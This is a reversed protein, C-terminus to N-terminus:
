HVFLCSIRIKGLLSNDVNHGIFIQVDPDAHQQLYLTAKSIEKLTIDNGGSINVLLGTFKHDDKEILPNKMAKHVAKYARDEGSAEGFGMRSLGKRNTLINAIDSYDLNIMGPVNIINTISRIGTHLIDDVMLFAQDLQISEDTNDLLNQNSIVVLTDVYKSLEELGEKAIIEKRKGEFKFPVTVVGVIITDKKHEKITKAIIPSSGTGTGGGLGAALFLLDSDGFSHIIQNKSEEAALRGKSPNAGAGHGRTLEPGLQIKNISKSKILDQHDTNCVYFKVGNLDNSIMHNIANGGGGGVGVVSIKPQFLELTVNSININTTKNNNNHNVGENNISSNNENQNISTLYRFASNCGGVRYSNSLLSSSSFFPRILGIKYLKNAM